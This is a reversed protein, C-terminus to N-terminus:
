DVREDMSGTRHYRIYHVLKPTVDIFAPNATQARRISRSLCASFASLDSGGVDLHYRRSVNYFSLWRYVQCVQSMTWVDNVDVHDLVQSLTERPLSFLKATQLM